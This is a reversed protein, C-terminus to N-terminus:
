GAEDEDEDAEPIPIPALDFVIHRRASWGVTPMFDPDEPLEMSFHIPTTGSKNAEAIVDRVLGYLRRRQEMGLGTPGLHRLLTNKVVIYAANVRQNEILAARPYFRTRARNDHKLIGAILAGDLIDLRRPLLRLRFYLDDDEGGYGEFVADYGGVAEFDARAVVCSGSAHYRDAGECRFRHFCGHDMALQSLRSMFDNTILVDADLFALWTGSAVAAGRNRAEALNFGQAEPVMVIRAAPFDRAVIEATRDPCNYDVVIVEADPQALFRPLSQRLHELRGKCTTIISFRVPM